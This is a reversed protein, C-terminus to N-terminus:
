RKTSYSFLNKNFNPFKSETYFTQASLSNNKWFSTVLYMSVYIGVFM